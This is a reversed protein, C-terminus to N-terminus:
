RIGTDIEIDLRLVSGSTITIRQPLGNARDIGAYNIDVLYSGAPLEAYYNGAADIELSAIVNLGEPEIILIRRAAYVEPSPTPPLEGEVLVPVLPGITVHGHLVGSGSGPPQCSALSLALLGVGAALFIRLWGVPRVGILGGVASRLITEKM